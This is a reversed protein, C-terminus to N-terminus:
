PSTSTRRIRHPMRRSWPATVCSSTRTASSRPLSCRGRVQRLDHPGRPVLCQFELHRDRPRPGRAHLERGHCRRRRVGRRHEGFRGGGTRRSGRPLRGSRLLAIGLDFFLGGGAVSPDFRWAGAAPRIRWRHPSRSQVSTVRGIEGKRLLDHVLRFRPLLAPLVGGVASAEAPRLGRGDARVASLRAGDAEGGPVAQRGARRRAGARLAHVATDRHVGGDRSSRRHSRPRARARRRRRAPSRLRSGQRRRAAHGRGTVLWGAEQFGPGSKVETVDGCGVIGWAVTEM